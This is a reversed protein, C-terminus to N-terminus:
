PETVFQRDSSIALNGAKDRSKVRYHYTTNPRLDTILSRHTKVKKSKLHNESDCPCSSEDFEIQTDSRENTEWSIKVRKSKIWVIQVNSIVPPTTDGGAANVTFTCAASTPDVNGAQDKARAYVTHSGNSLNNFTNSTASGYSSWSGNDLKNAYVLSGVPTVNDTGSWNITVSNSSTTTGCVSSTITTDPPTTDGPPPPPPTGTALALLALFEAGGTPVSVPGNYTGNVIPSGMNRPNVIKYNTGNSFISSLDVVVNSNLGWNFIAIHGRGSEYDNKIVAVKNPSSSVVSSSTDFGVGAQATFTQWESFSVSGQNNNDAFFTAAFPSSYSNNNWSDGSRIEPCGNCLGPIWASTRYEFHDGSPKHFENGTYLSPATQPYQTEGKGWFFRTLLTSRGVYNNEFKVQAPREWGFNITGNWFYNQKVIENDAPLNMGGILFKGRSIINKEAHFGSVRGNTSYAHFNYTNPTADWADLLMNGVIYKYGHVSYDNQSYLNHPNNGNPLQKYVINGYVVQGSGQAWAAIGVRGKIDHVICNIIHGGPANLAIGETNGINNPDKVELGWVWNYNANISISGNIIAGGGAVARWVIPNSSSGNRTFTKQGNYTGATLWYLDGAVAQNMATSLSM